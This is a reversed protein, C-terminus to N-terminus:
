TKPDIKVLEAQFTEIASQVWPHSEIQRLREMREKAAAQPSVAAAKKAIPRAAGEVMSLVIQTGTIGSLAETVPGRHEPLNMRRMAMGSNSPFVLEIMPPGKPNDVNLRLEAMSAISATMQPVHQLAAAFVEKFNNRQLSMKPLSAKDIEITPNAAPSAGSAPSAKEAAASPSGGANGSTANESAAANSAPTGNAQAPGSAQPAGRATTSNSSSAKEGVPAGNTTAVSSSPPAAQPAPPTSPSATVSPSSQMAAAAAEIANSNLTLKKKEGGAASSSSPGSKAAAALDAIAQLDPLNCVQILTSELLVRGYVSHRVRVLTQDILAVVALVTQLGWTDALKKLEDHMSAATHRQLSPDCGVSVAMLDRFYGLLQEAIRSADVGADIAADLQKLASAADRNCMATALAHLREDDATGLMSHVQDATLHGNSFSLVQELLSQSDRMSGAARRAVLELAEDDAEANEATVIERLRGVIKSVEVPAFDFRQCRSLVTIPMKEPDTTCFIFKVHEPPEELTKLLANFAAQTLMHVEDIIYIKYRSRSPRVGVNARLSRIEDIGRNSAGDIEIVDIDEGVDIAQAIDSSSDFEANPGSPNNLAKAFIRATSTKGVGRAGTFLYAHGVRGTEIANALARGVHEQGVLEGFNKPRYRRAVVVYASDKESSSAAESM